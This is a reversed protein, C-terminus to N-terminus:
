QVLVYFARAANSGANMSGVCRNIAEPGSLRMNVVKAEIDEGPVVTFRLGLRKYADHTDRSVM